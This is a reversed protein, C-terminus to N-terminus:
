GQRIWTCLIQNMERRYSGPIQKGSFRTGISCIEQAFVVSVCVGHDDSSFEGAGLTARYAFHTSSSSMACVQNILAIFGSDLLWNILHSDTSATQCLKM